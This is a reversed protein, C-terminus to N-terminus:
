PSSESVSAKRWLRSPVNLQPLIEGGDQGSAREEGRCDGESSEPERRKTVRIEIAVILSSRSGCGNARESRNGERVPERVAGPTESADAETLKAWAGPRQQVPTM